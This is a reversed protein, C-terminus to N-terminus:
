AAEGGGRRAAASKMALRAFYEKKAHEAAALKQQDTANAFLEPDLKDLWYEVSGPAKARAPRTRATRDATRAWSAHAGLRGITQRLADPSHM